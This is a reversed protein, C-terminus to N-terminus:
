VRSVSLHGHCLPATLLCTAPAVEVAVMSATPIYTVKLISNNVIDWVFHKTLCLHRTRASTSDAETSSAAVRAQLRSSRSVAGSLLLFVFGMTSRLTSPNAGWDSDSYAEFGALPSDDPVYVVGYDLTGKIYQCARVVAAWHNQDPRASCRGLIGVVCALDPRIGLMAYRLCGIAQLYRRCLNSPSHYNDAALCLQQNPIM